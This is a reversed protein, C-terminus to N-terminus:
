LYSNVTSVSLGLADAIEKLTKGQKALANIKNIKSQTVTVKNRPMSLQRVRQGDAYKLITKLKSASVAGSQIAEWEKDTIEIQQRKAGVLARTKTLVQQRMRKEHEKDLNPDAAKKEAVIQNALTQAMRERPANLEAIRIKEDLSAVEEKYIKKASPTTLPDKIALAEKRATNALAKIKNAYEAYAEEKINGSSLTHADSTEAM